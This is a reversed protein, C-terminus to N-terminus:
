IRSRWKMQELLMKKITKEHKSWAVSKLGQKWEETEKLEPDNLLPNTDRNQFLHHMEPVFMESWLSEFNEVCARRFRKMLNGAIESREKTIHWPQEPMKALQEFRSELEAFEPTRPLVWSLFAVRTEMPLETSLSPYKIKQDETWNRPEGLIDEASQRFVEDPIVKDVTANLFRRLTKHHPLSKRKGQSGSEEWAAKYGENRERIRQINRQLVSKLDVGHKIIVSAADALAAGAANRVEENESQSAIMELRRLSHSVTKGLEKMEEVTAAKIRYMMEFMDMPNFPTPDKAPKPNM